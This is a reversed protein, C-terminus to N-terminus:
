KACCALSFDLVILSLPLSKSGMGIPLGITYSGFGSKFDLYGSQDLPVTLSMLPGPLFYVILLSSVPQIKVLVLVSILGFLFLAPSYIVLDPQREFGGSLSAIM